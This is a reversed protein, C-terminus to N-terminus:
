PFAEFSTPYAVLGSPESLSIVLTLIGYLLGSPKAPNQNREVPVRHDLEPVRAPEATVQKLPRAAAVKGPGQPVLRRAPPLRHEIDHARTIKAVIQASKSRRFHTPPIRGILIQLPRFAGAPHHY